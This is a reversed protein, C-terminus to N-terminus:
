LFPLWLSQSNKGFGSTNSIDVVAGSFIVLVMLCLAMPQHKWHIMDTSTAHGWHMPGWVTSDTISIFYIIFARHYLM